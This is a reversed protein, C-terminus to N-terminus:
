CSMQYMLQIFSAIFLFIYVSCVFNFTLIYVTLPGSAPLMQIGKLGEEDQYFHM